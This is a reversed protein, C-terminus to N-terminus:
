STVKWPSMRKRSANTAAESEAAAELTLLAAEADNLPRYLRAFEAVPFTTSSAGAWEEAAPIRGWATTEVM